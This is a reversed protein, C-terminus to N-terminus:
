SGGHLLLIITYYCQATTGLNSAYVRVPMDLYVVGEGNENVELILAIKKLTLTLTGDVNRTLSPMGGGYIGPMGTPTDWVTAQEPPEPFTYRLLGREDPDNALDVDIVQWIGLFDIGHTPPEPEPDIAWVMQASACIISILVFLIKNMIHYKIPPETIENKM